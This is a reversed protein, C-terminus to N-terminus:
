GLDPQGSSTKLVTGIRKIEGTEGRKLKNRLNRSFKGNDGLGIRDLRELM